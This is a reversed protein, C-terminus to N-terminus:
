QFVLYGQRNGLVILLKYTCNEHWHFNCLFLIKLPKQVNEEALKVDEALSALYTYISFNISLIFNTLPSFM